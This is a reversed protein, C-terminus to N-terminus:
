KDQERLIEEGLRRLEEVTRHRKKRVQTKEQNQQDEDQADVDPAPAQQIDDFEGEPVPIGYDRLMQIAQQRTIITQSLGQVMTARAADIQANELKNEAIPNWYIAEHWDGKLFQNNIRNIVPTLKLNRKTELLDHWGQYDIEGGTTAGRVVGIFELFPMELAAAQNHYYFEAFPTPNVPAPNLMQVEHKDTGAFGTKPNLKRIIKFAAKVDEKSGNTTKIVVIPRGHRYIVQGVAWDMRLKAIMTNLGKDYVGHGFFETGTKFWSLQIVRTKHFRLPETGRTRHLYWFNGMRDIKKVREEIFISDMLVVDKLGMQPTIPQSYDQFGREPIIELYGNGHIMAARVQSWLKNRIELDNHMQMLLDNKKQNMTQGPRPDDMTFWSSVLKSATKEIGASTMSESRHYAERGIPDLRNKQKTSLLEDEDVRQMALDVDGLTALTVLKEGPPDKRLLGM